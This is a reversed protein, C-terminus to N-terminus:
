NDQVAILEVSNLRDYQQSDHLIITMSISYYVVLGSLAFLHACSSCFSNIICLKPNMRAGATSSSSFERTPLKRKVSCLQQNNRQEQTIFNQIRGQKPFFPNEPQLLSLNLHHVLEARGDSAVVAKLFLFACASLITDNALQSYECNKKTFNM